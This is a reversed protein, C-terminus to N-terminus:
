RKWLFTIYHMSNSDQLSLDQMRVSVKDIVNNVLQAVRSQQPNKNEARVEGGGGLIKWLGRGVGWSKQGPEHRQIETEKRILFERSNSRTQRCVSRCMNLKLFHLQPQGIITPCSALLQPRTTLASSEHSLPRPNLGGSLLGNILCWEYPDFVQLM